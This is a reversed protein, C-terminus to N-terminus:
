NTSSTQTLLGHQTVIARSGLWVSCSTVYSLYKRKGPKSIFSCVLFLCFPCKSSRLVPFVLVSTMYKRFQVYPMCQQLWKFLPQFSFWFLYVCLKTQKTRFVSLFFHSWNWIPHRPFVQRASSMDQTMETGPLSIDFLLFNPRFLPSLAICPFWLMNHLPAISINHINRSRTVM